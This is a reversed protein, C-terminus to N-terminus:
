FHSTAHFSPLFLFVCNAAMDKVHHIVQLTPIIFLGNFLALSRNMRIIWFATSAIWVALIFFSFPYLFQNEGKILIIATETDSQFHLMGNRRVSCPQDGKMTMNILESLCKGQVASQTGIIASCIAYSLPMITNAGYLATGRSKALKYHTYLMHMGLAFSLEFLLFSQLSSPPILGHLVSVVASNTTFVCWDISIIRIITVQYEHDYFAVLDAKSYASSDHTSSMINVCNGMLILVTGLIIRTTM